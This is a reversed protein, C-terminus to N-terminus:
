RQEGYMSSPLNFHIPFHPFQADPKTNWTHQTCTIQSSKRAFTNASKAAFLKTQGLKNQTSSPYAHVSRTGETSLCLSNQLHLLKGHAKDGEYCQQITVSTIRVTNVLTSSHNALLAAM